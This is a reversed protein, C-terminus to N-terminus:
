SKIFLDMERATHPIRVECEGLEVQERTIDLIHDEFAAIVIISDAEAEGPLGREEGYVM